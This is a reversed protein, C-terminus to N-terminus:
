EGGNSLDKLMALEDEDVIQLAWEDPIYLKVRELEHAKESRKNNYYASALVRAKHTICHYTTRKRVNGTVEYTYAICDGCGSGIQCNECDMGACQESRTLGKFREIRECQEPTVMFGDDVTGIIYPEQRDGISNPMFRLCPYLNGDPDVGIMLGAGGCWCHDECSEPWPTGNLNDFMSIYIKDELDHDLVYDAVKKLQQYVKAGHEAKWGEEYTCNINVLNYGDEIMEIAADAVYDVNDPAITVKSGANKGNGWHENYHKIAAMVRDYTPNGGKDFRARDHLLRNGDMSISLSLHNRNKRIYEQVRPDFYLLGNTTIGIRFNTGWPHKRIICQEIFYDTLQDIVEINLFPEGGIIDLIVAPCEDSKVYKATREDADLLLDIFKKATEFSMMKPTKCHQYCYTCAMNCDETVQITLTRIFKGGIEISGYREPFLRYVKDVFDEHKLISKDTM